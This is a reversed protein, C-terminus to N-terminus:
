QLSYGQSFEDSCHHSDLNECFQKLKLQFSAYTLFPVLAAWRFLCLASTRVQFANNSSQLILLNFYILPMSSSFHKHLVRRETTLKNVQKCSFLITISNSYKLVALFIKTTTVILMQKTIKPNWVSKLKLSWGSFYIHLKIIMGLSKIKPGESQLPFHLNKWKQLTELM